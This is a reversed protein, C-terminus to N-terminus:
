FVRGRSSAGGGGLKCKIRYNCTLFFEGGGVRGGGPPADSTAPPTRPAGSSALPALKCKLRFNYIFFEAGQVRGGWPALQIPGITKGIIELYFPFEGREVGGGSLLAPVSEGQVQAVMM